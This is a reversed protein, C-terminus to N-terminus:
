SSGLYSLAIDRPLQKWALLTRPYFSYKFYDCSATSLKYTHESSRTSKYTVPQLMNSDAHTLNNRMKFIMSLRAISTRSQLTKWNLCYLVDNVSDLRDCRNLLWRTARRQVM